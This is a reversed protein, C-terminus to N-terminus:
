IKSLSLGGIPGVSMNAGLSSPPLSPLASLPRCLFSALCRFAPLPLGDVISCSFSPAISVPFLPFRVPPWCIHFISLMSPLWSSILPQCILLVSIWCFICSDRNYTYVPAILSRPLVRWRRGAFVSIIIPVWLFNLSALM